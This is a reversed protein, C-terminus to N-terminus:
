KRYSSWKAICLKVMLLLSLPCWLTFIKLPALIGQHCAPPHFIYGSHGEGKGVERTSWLYSLLSHLSQCFFGLWVWFTFLCLDAESTVSNQIQVTIELCCKQFTDRETQQEFHFQENGQIKWLFGPPNSFAWNILALTALSKHGSQSCFHM